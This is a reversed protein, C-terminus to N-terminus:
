KRLFGVVFGIVGSLSASASKMILDKFGNAQDMAWGASNTFSNRYQALDIFGFYAAATAVCLIAAAFFAVTKVFTRAMLGLIFAIVFGLGVRWMTPATKDYFWHAYESVQAKAEDLKVQQQPTLSQGAPVQLEEVTARAQVAAPPDPRVAGAISGAVGAIGALLAVVVILKTVWSTRGFERALRAVMGPRRVVVTETEPAAATPRSM